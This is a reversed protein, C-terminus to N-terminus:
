IRAEGPNPRSHNLHKRADGMGKEFLDRLFERSGPHFDEPVRQGLGMCAIPLGSAALYRCMVAYTRTEDLKTLAVGRPELIGYAGVTAEIDEKKATAAMTLLPMIRDDALWLGLEKIMERDYPSRGTTDIIVLDRHHHRDIAGAMKEPKVVVECPIGMIRGYTRLQETAGIRYCDCSLLAIDLGQNIKFWAAIKACTTTKGVGTPGVLAIVMPHHKEPRLPALQIADIVRRRYTSVDPAPTQPEKKKGLRYDMLRSFDAKKGPFPRRYTAPRVFTETSASDEPEDHDFDVAATVEIGGNDGTRSSLIVAEEGLANRIMTLAESNDKAQFRRIKM